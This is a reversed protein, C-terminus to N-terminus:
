VWPPLCGDLDILWNETEPWDMPLARAEPGPHAIPPITAEGRILYRCGAPEDTRFIAPVSRARRSLPYLYFLQHPQVSADPLIAVWPAETTAIARAYGAMRTSHGSLDTAEDVRERLSDHRVWGCALVLVSLLAMAVRRAVPGAGLGGLRGVMWRVAGRVGGALVLSLAPYAPYLYWPLKSTSLSIAVLFALAWLACHLLTRARRAEPAETDAGLRRRGALALAPILAPVLALLWLGFDAGLQRVYFAPGHIHSPDVSETARVVTDRYLISALNGGTWANAAIAYPAYCALAILVVGAVAGARRGLGAREGGRRDRSFLFDALEWAVFGPLALVAAAGKVLSALGVAVGAGLLAWRRARVTEANLHFAYLMWATTLLLVFASDQVGDRVGHRTVYLPATALLLGALAGTWVGLRRAGFVFVLLVTAVGLVADVVRANHESVGFRDFIWAM